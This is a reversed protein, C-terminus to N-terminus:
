GSCEHEVSRRGTAEVLQVEDVPWLVGRRQRVVLDLDLDLCGAEVEAVDHHGHALHGSGRESVLPSSDDGLDASADSADLRAVAHQHERCQMASELGVRARGTLNRGLDWIVHGELSRGAHGDNEGGGVVTQGLHGAETGALSTEDVCCGATHSLSGNLNRLVHACLHKCRHRRGLLSLQQHILVANRGVVDERRAVEGKCGTDHPHGVVTADIDDEVREGTLGEARRPVADGSESAEDLNALAVDKCISAEVHQGEAAGDHESGAIQVGDGLQVGLCSVANEVFDDVHPLATGDPGGLWVRDVREGLNFLGEAQQLRALM